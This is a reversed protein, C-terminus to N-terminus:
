KYKQGAKSVKLFLFELWKQFPVLLDPGKASESINGLMCGKFVDLSQKLAKLRYRVKCPSNINM